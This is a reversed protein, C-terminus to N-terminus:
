HQSMRRLLRNPNGITSRQEIAIEADRFPDRTEDDKGM